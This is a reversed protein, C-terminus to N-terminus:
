GLYLREPRMVISVHTRAQIVRREAKEPEEESPHFEIKTPVHHGGSLRITVPSGEFGTSECLWDGAERTFGCENLAKSVIGTYDGDEGDYNKVNYSSEM